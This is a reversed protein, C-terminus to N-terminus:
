RCSAWRLLWTSMPRVICIPLLPLLWASLMGLVAALVLLAMVM